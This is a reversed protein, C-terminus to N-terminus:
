LRRECQERHDLGAGVGARPPPWTAYMLEVETAFEPITTFLSQDYSKQNCTSYFHKAVVDVPATVGAVFPLLYSEPAGALEVAVFKISPDV